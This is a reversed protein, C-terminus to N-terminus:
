SVTQVCHQCEHLIPPCNASRARIHVHSTVRSNQQSWPSACCSLDVCMCGANACFHPLRSLRRKCTLFTLFGPSTCSLKLLISRASADKTMESFATANVLRLTTPLIERGKLSLFRCPKIKQCKLQVIWLLSTPITGTSLRLKRCPPLEPCSTWRNSVRPLLGQRPRIPRAPHRSPVVPNERWWV